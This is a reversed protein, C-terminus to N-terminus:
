KEKKTRKSKGRKVGTVDGKGPKSKFEFQYTLDILPMFLTKSGYNDMKSYAFKYGGLIRFNEFKYWLLLAKHEISWDNLRDLGVFQLDISFDLDEIFFHGDLQLAAYWMFQHNYIQTRPHLVPHFVTDLIQQDSNFAFHFGARYTALYNPASCITPKQLFTSVILENTISFNGKPNNTAPYIIERDMDMVNPYTKASNYYRKLQMGPYYIGHRSAIKIDKDLWLKKGYLNPVFFMAIPQTGLELTRTLGYRTTQFLSVDLDNKEVTRANGVTWISCQADVVFPIVILLFILKCQKM